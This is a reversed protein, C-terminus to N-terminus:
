QPAAPRPKPTVTGGYFVNFPHLEYRFVEAKIAPDEDMMSRAEAETQAALLVLGKDAYRAGMVLTGADRLRKLNASHERFYTQENPPKTPDWKAGVRIEVAFLPPDQVVPAPAQAQSTACFVATGLTLAICSARVFPHPPM